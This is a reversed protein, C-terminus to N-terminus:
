SRASRILALAWPEVIPQWILALLVLVTAVIAITPRIPLDLGALRIAARDAPIAVAVGPQPTAGVFARGLRRWWIPGSGGAPSTDM